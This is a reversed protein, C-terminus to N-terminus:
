ARHNLSSSYSHLILSQPWNVMHDRAHGLHHNPQHNAMFFCTTQNLSVWHFHVLNELTGLLNPFISRKPTGIAEGDVKVICGCCSPGGYFDDLHLYIYTFLVYMSGIPVYSKKEIANIFGQLPKPDFDAVRQQKAPM